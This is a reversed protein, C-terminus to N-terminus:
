RMGLQQYQLSQISKAPGGDVSRVTQCVQEGAALAGRGLGRGEEEGAAWCHKCSHRASRSCRSAANRRRTSRIQKATGLLLSVKTTRLIM